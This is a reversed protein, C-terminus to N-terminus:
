LIPTNGHYLERFKDINIDLLSNGSCLHSIVIAQYLDSLQARFEQEKNEQRHERENGQSNIKCSLRYIRWSVWFMGIAALTSTVSSIVMIFNMIIEKGDFIM